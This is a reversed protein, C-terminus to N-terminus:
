QVRLTPLAPSKHASGRHSGRRCAAYCRPLCLHFQLHPQLLYPQLLHPHLLHGKLAELLPGDPSQASAGHWLLAFFLALAGRDEPGNCQLATALLLALLLLLALM